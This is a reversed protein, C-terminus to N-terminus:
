PQGPHEWGFFAVGERATIDGRLEGIDEGPYVSYVTVSWERRDALQDFHFGCVLTLLSTRPAYHGSDRRVRLATSHRNPHFVELENQGYAVRAVTSTWGVLVECDIWISETFTPTEPQRASEQLIAERILTRILEGQEAMLQDFNEWRFFNGAQRVGRGRFCTRWLRGITEGSMRIRVTDADVPECPYEHSM